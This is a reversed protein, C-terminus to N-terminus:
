PRQNAKSCETTYATLLCFAHLRNSPWSDAHLLLGRIVCLKALCLLVFSPYSLREALPLILYSRTSENHPLAAGKPRPKENHLPPIEHTLRVTDPLRYPTTM